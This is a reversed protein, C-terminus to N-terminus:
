ETRVVPTESLTSIATTKGSAIADRVEVWTLDDVDPAPPACGDLGVMGAVEAARAAEVTWGAPSLDSMDSGSSM